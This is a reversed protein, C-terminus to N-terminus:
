DETSVAALTSTTNPQTYTMCVISVVPTYRRPVVVSVDFQKIQSGHWKAPFRINLIPDTARQVSTLM